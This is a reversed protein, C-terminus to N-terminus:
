NGEEDIENFISMFLGEDVSEINKVEKIYEEMFPRATDLKMTETKELGHKQWLRDVRKWAEVETMDEKM